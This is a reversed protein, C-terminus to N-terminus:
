EDGPSHVVGHNLSASGFAASAQDLQTIALNAKAQKDPDPHSSAVDKLTAAVSQIHNYAETWHETRQAAIQEPTKGNQFAAQNKFYNEAATKYE